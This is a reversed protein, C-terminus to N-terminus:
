RRNNWSAREGKKEMETGQRGGDMGGHQGQATDDKRTGLNPHLQV